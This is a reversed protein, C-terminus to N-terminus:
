VSPCADQNRNELVQAHQSGPIMCNRKKDVEGLICIEIQLSTSTSPIVFRRPRPHDEQFQTGPSGPAKITHFGRSLLLRRGTNFSFKPYVSFSTSQILVTVCCKVQRLIWPTSLISLRDSAWGVVNFPFQIKQIQYDFLLINM